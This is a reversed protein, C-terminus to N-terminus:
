LDFNTLMKTLLYFNSLIWWLKPKKLFFNTLTFIYLYFNSLIWWLKLKKLYFNTSIKTLHYFNTLIKTLLNFKTLIITTKLSLIILMDIPCPTLGEHAAQPPRESPQQPESAFQSPAAPIRPLAPRSQRRRHISLPGAPAPFLQLARQRQPGTGDIQQRDAAPATQADTRKRHCLAVRQWLGTQVTEPLSQLTGHELGDRGHSESPVGGIWKWFWM